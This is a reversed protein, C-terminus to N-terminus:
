QGYSSVDIRSGVESWYLEALEEASSVSETLVAWRRMLETMQELAAEGNHIGFRERYISAIALSDSAIFERNLAILEDSAPGYLTGAAIAKGIKWGGIRRSM